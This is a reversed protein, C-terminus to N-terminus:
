KLPVPSLVHFEPLPIKQQKAILSNSFRNNIHMKVSNSKTERALGSKETYTTALTSFRTIMSQIESLAISQYYFHIRKNHVEM